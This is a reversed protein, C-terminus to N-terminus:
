RPGAQIMHLDNITRELSSHAANLDNLSVQDREERARTIRSKTSRLLSGLSIVVGTLYDSAM